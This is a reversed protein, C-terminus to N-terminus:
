HDGSRDDEENGRDSEGNVPMAPASRVEPWCIVAAAAWLGNVAPIGKALPCVMVTLTGALVMRGWVALMCMTSHAAAGSPEGGVPAGLQSM